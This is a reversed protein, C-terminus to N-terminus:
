KTANIKQQNKRVTDISQLQRCSDQKNVTESEKNDSASRCIELVSFSSLFMLLVFFCSKIRDYKDRVAFYGICVFTTLICGLAIVYRMKEIISVSGNNGIFISLLGVFFTTITIFLGMQEMNKREMNNIKKQAEQISLLDEYREIESELMSCEWDLQDRKKSIEDFKLPRSFSSPHFLKYDNNIETCENFTLQFAYRQNQKCWEIKDHFLENWQKVCDIKEILIGKDVRNAIDEKISKITYEIGKQYPHYNYIMCINQITIIKDLCTRIDKFSFMKPNKCKLSFLCNYMYVRVSRLAYKNFEYFMNKEKEEYFLEYEKLLNEAQTVNKTVKTYYRMLLVMQGLKAWRKNPHNQWLYVDEELVHKEPNIFKLYNSYVDNDSMDIEKPAVIINKFNFQYEIRMNKAFHSLKLLLIDIESIALDVNKKADSDVINGKAKELHEKCILIDRIKIQDYSFRYEFLWIDIISDLLTLWSDRKSSLRDVEIFNLTRKRSDRIEYIESTIYIYFKTLMIASRLETLLQQYGNQLSIKQKSEGTEITEYTCRDLLSDIGDTPFRLHDGQMVLNSFLVFLKSEADSIKGKGIFFSKRSKEEDSWELSDIWGDPFLSKLLENVKEILPIARKKTM